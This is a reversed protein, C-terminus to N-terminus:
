DTWPLQGKRGGEVLAPCSEAGGLGAAGKAVCVSGLTRGMTVQTVIDGGEAGDGHGGRALRTAPVSFLPPFPPLPTDVASCIKFLVEGRFVTGLGRTNKLTM